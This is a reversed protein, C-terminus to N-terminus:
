FKYTYAVKFEREPAKTILTGAGFIPDSGLFYDEDTLNEIALRLEWTPREYSVSGNFVLTSPLKLTHDFNHWYSDSWVGGLSFGLGNDLKYIAHLKFQTQPTGPYERDPNNAPNGFPGGTNISDFPDNLVGGYLAWDQESMPIARFPTSDGELTVVQQNVSGILSFNKNPAWTAELEVGRGELAEVANQIASFSSQRWTYGALGVFLKNELLATKVGAEALRNESFSQKGIIPGGQLPDVATGIQGTVYFTVQENLKFQPSFSFSQYVKDHEDSLAAVTAPSVGVAWDGPPAVEYPAYGVLASSYATIQDTIKSEAYAFLSLQLLDSEVNGGQGGFGGNWYNVGNSYISPGGAAVRSNNSVGSQSIDRRSFPEDWFDQLQLAETYRASAGYTLTTNLLSFNETISLKNELVLQESEFAYGYSSLKDTSIYEVMTQNRVTRDPNRKSEIDGFWFFNQSDAYDSDDSLVQNGDIQATLARGGAAFYAPTYQYGSATQSIFPLDGAPIDAYAAARGGPTSLDNMLAVQAPTIAGSALASNIYSEPVVLAVSSEPIAPGYKFGTGGYILGRNAYGGTRSDAVSIPEGVVYRGSNILQQTPRNWGANENSKYNFFEGGTFVTVDKAVEAKVAGYLSLYDNGIRDYYSDALQGTLSIRYAAPKGLLLTPGGVDTQINYSDNQGIEVKVSGRKQDFYPSKPILNVYGGVLAAGFHAPAPGKVLDMGELSGFSLPMENRQYARQMGNFFVSGKAGRVTPIGPVGYYNIQQTGAGVKALDGFDKIDFQKMLEPTLVTVSRPTELISGSGFVSLVPRSTPLVDGAAALASERVSFEELTVIEGTPAAEQAASTHFSLAAASLTAALRPHLYKKM